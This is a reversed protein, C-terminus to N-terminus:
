GGLYAGGRGAEGAAKAQSSRHAAQAALVDGRGAPDSLVEITEQDQKARYRAWFRYFGCKPHRQPIFEEMKKM